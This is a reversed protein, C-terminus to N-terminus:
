ALSVFPAWVPAPWSLSGHQLCFCKLWKRKTLWCTLHICSRDRYVSVILAVYRRNPNTSISLLTIQQRGWTRKRKLLCYEQRSVDLLTLCLFMLISSSLGSAQYDVLFAIYPASDTVMTLVVVLLDAMTSFFTTKMLVYQKSQWAFGASDACEPFSLGAGSADRDVKWCGRRWWTVGAPWHSGKGLQWWGCREGAMPWM